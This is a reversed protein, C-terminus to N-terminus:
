KTLAFMRTNIFDLIINAIIGFETQKNNYNISLFFCMHLQYNM